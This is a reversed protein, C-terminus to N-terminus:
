KTDTQTMLEQRQCKTALCEFQRETMMSRIMGYSIQCGLSNFDRTLVLASTVCM